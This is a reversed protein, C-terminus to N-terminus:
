DFYGSENWDCGWGSDYDDRDDYYSPVYNPDGYNLCDLCHCGRYDDEEEEEEEEEAVAQAEAASTPEVSPETEPLHATTEPEPTIPEQAGEAVPETVPVVTVIEPASM